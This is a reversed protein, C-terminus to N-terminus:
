FHSLPPPGYSVNAATLWSAQQQHGSRERKAAAATVDSFELGSIAGCLGADALRQRLGSWLFPTKLASYLPQSVFHSGCSKARSFFVSLGESRSM